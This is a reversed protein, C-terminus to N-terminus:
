VNYSLAASVQLEWDLELESLDDPIKTTEDVVIWDIDIAAASDDGSGAGVEEDGEVVEGDADVKEFDELEPTEIFVLSDAEPGENEKNSEARSSSGSGTGGIKQEIVYRFSVSETGKPVLHFYNRISAGRIEAYVALLNLLSELEEVLAAVVEAAFSSLSLHYSNTMDALVAIVIACEGYRSPFRKKETAAVLLEDVEKLIPALTLEAFESSRETMPDAQNDFWMRLQMELRKVLKSLQKVLFGFGSRAPLSRALQAKCAGLLARFLLSRDLANLLLSKSELVEMLHEKNNSLPAVALVWRTLTDLTLYRAFEPSRLLRSITRCCRKLTKLREKLQDSDWNMNRSNIVVVTAEKNSKDKSEADNEVKYLSELAAVCGVLIPNLHVRLLERQQEDTLRADIGNLAAEIPALDAAASNRNGGGGGCGVGAGAGTTLQLVFDPITSPMKHQRKITAQDKSDEDEEQITKIIIRLDLQPTNNHQQQLRLARALLPKNSSRQRSPLSGASLSLSLLPLCFLSVGCVVFFWFLDVRSDNTSSTLQSPTLTWM